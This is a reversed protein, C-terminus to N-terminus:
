GEIKQLRGVRQAWTVIQTKSFLMGQETIKIPDPLNDTGRLLMVNVYQPRVGLLRAVEPRTIIDDIAIHTIDPMVPRRGPRSRPSGATTTPSSTDGAPTTGTSSDRAAPSAARTSAPARRRPSRRRRPARPRPGPTP